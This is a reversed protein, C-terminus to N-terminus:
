PKSIRARKSYHFGCPFPFKVVTSGKVLSIYYYPSPTPKSSPEEIAKPVQM